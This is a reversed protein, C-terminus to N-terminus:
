IIKFSNNLSYKQRWGLKRLKLNSGFFISKTSKIPYFIKIKIKKVKFFIKAFSLNSISKNSCVNILVNDDIKKQILILASVVDKIFIFDNSVYPFNLSFSKLRNLQCKKLSHILSGKRSNKGYVYFLRVWLSKINKNLKKQFLKRIQNKQKGLNNKSNEIKNSEFIPSKKKEYEACSGTILIKKCNTKNLGSILNLTIKENKRFNSKNFFPIGEWALHYVFSPNIKEIISITDNKNTLNCKFVKHNKFKKKLRSKSIIYIKKNRFYSILESAIIGSGGTILIKEPQKM